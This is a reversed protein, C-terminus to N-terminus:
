EVKQKNSRIWDRMERVTDYSRNEPIIFKDIFIKKLIKRGNEDKHMNLLIEKIRVKLRTDMDPHVIIPPIGYPPSKILIKTKSTYKPNTADMFEWILHDIAAGDVEKKAVKEISKSHHGSFVFESFFSDSTEGMKALMYTPVLFGTNSKPDTFAFKKGRLGEMETSTSDFPVIIYSYYVAEGYAQPAVLLEAGFEDHDTVYPGSCVFAIEVNRTMLLKDMEEYTKRQVMDIDRQLEEAVYYLIQQYVDATEKPSIMAAVGFRLPKEKQRAYLNESTGVLAAATLGAIVVSMLTCGIWNKLM